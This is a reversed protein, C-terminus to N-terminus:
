SLRGRGACLPACRGVSFWWGAIPAGVPDTSSLSDAPLLSQLVDHTSLPEQLGYAVLMDANPSPQIVEAMLHEIAEKRTLGSVPVDTPPELPSAPGCGDVPLSLALAISLVSIFRKM